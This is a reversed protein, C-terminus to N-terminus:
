YVSKTDVSSEFKTEQGHPEKSEEGLRTWVITKRLRTIMYISVVVWGLGKDWGTM